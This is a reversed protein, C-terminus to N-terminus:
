SYIHLVKEGWFDSFTCGWELLDISFAVGNNDIWHHFHSLMWCYMGSLRKYLLVGRGWSNLELLAEKNYQLEVICFTLFHEFVNINPWTTNALYSSLCKKEKKRIHLLRKVKEKRKLKIQWKCMELLVRCKGLFKAYGKNKMEEPYYLRELHFQHCNKHLMKLPCCSLTHFFHLRCIYFFFHSSQMLIKM